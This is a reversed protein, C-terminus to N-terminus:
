VERPDAGTYWAVTAYLLDRIPQGSLRQSPAIRKSADRLHGVVRELDGLEAAPVPFSRLRGDTRFAASEPVSDETLAIGYRAIERRIRPQLDRNVWSGGFEATLDERGVFPRAYTRDGIRAGAELVVVSRGRDVLDRAATIGAFGAGVVVADYLADM